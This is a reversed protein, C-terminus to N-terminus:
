SAQAISGTLYDSVIRLGRQRQILDVPRAGLDVNHAFLWSRAAADDGAFHGDISYFLKLLLQASAFIESKPELHAGGSRIQSAEVPEINLVFGLVEDSFQWNNAIMTIASALLEGDSRYEVSRHSSM